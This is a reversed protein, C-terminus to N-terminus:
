AKYFEEIKDCIYAVDEDTVTMNMPLLMFRATMTETYPCDARLGLKPFQHLTKGGWQLITGIGNEALFTKLEDRRDAEIEYNQYIDHHDPDAEPGPPLLLQELHGLRQQYIAAIARRRAMTQDYEAFQLDLVAAHLNDLRGNFGFLEVDGNEARGHDRMLQIRAAVKDDNTVIAGGDGFTGLVKAPYFSFTGAVGFTGAFRGKFKSGLGQCSDEVIALGHKDALACIEDMNCTRGNLQVPMIGKTKPTIMRAASAADLMHDPGCDALVPTAGAHRIASASAVFTHSPVIVEDGPGFGAAICSMILANTGDAVGIAHKVGMFEALNAEFDVLDKQMIYAGRSLVDRIKDMFAEERCTFLAPYNFFPITRTAIM